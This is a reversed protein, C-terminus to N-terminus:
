RTVVYQYRRQLTALAQATIPRRAVPIGKQWGTLCWGTPSRLEREATVQQGIFQIRITMPATSHHPSQLRGTTSHYGLDQHTRDQHLRRRLRCRQRRHHFRRPLFSSSDHNPKGQPSRFYLRDAACTLRNTFSQSCRESCPFIIELDRTRSQATTPEQSCLTHGFSRECSGNINERSNRKLINASSYTFNHATKRTSLPIYLSGGGGGIKFPQDDLCM